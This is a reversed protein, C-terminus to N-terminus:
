SEFKKAEVAIDHRVFDGFKSGTFPKAREYIYDTALKSLQDALLIHGRKLYRSKAKENVFGRRFIIALHKKALSM